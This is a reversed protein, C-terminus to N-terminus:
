YYKCHGERNYLMVKGLSYKAQLDVKWWKDGEKDTHTFDNM